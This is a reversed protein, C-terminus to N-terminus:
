RGFKRTAKVYTTCPWRQRCTGCRDNDTRTMLHDVAIEALMACASDLWRQLEDRSPLSM